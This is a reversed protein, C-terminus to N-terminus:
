RVKKRSYVAEFLLPLIFLTLLMSVPLGGVIMIALPKQIESGMGTSIAAPLLGASGMLAVMVLPRIRSEVAKHIATKLDMRQRTYHKAAELLIVGNLISVGFLIIYGVGASIGFNTGTVLLSVLGGLFAFPICSLAILTDSFNNFNVYLLFFIFLLSIPVIQMLRKTAREKNEFEGAWEMLYNRPLDLNNEVLTQAERITSGLDRGRISFGIAIHRTNAERYIFTPGTYFGIDAIEKLAVKSGRLTPILIDGIHDENARYEPMFRIRIDFVREDEYFYNATKGGIAMEIVAQADAVMIGHMAMREEDLSIRMEPQGINRFVNLDEIGPVDAIISATSDALQELMELNDGFIKIVLASKVGAVYEEVNDMIPQSFALNMNPIIEMSSRIDELLSETTVGRRWDREPKLEIHFEINFFGTPDTGDNPRGTQTLVYEVEPFTRVREKMEKTLEVARALSISNPLTARAYIAGENLHPLFETGLTRFAFVGAVVMSATGILAWKKVSYIACFAKYLGSKFLRTVINSRERINKRLLDNALAPVLTLSFILSGILAYGLTYALPSFMKGEVKQFAFIPILACILILKAFFVSQATRATSKKIMGAKALQNFRSMGLERRRKDLAVFISEVIVVAGDVIIGFDIAGMSILNAPLGQLRLMIFAFLLSLPIIVAVILTTRWGMLFLFVIASVLVVGEILNFTVTRVTNNVLDTRDYFPVLSVGAPLIRDNLDDIKLKLKDIVDSPNEGRRMVVIGQVLDDIDDLGVQGLRPKGSILVEAVHRVLVPTGELNDIVINEIDELNDLLGIGRVVYAQDGKEIIDGGVNVNSAAVAEYVDLPTLNYKFLLNPDVRIEFIKEEGGFSVIDAIGPVSLLHREVLWQQIATLERIDYVESQLTYRFIEGTAGSPPEIEYDAGDPFPINLLRAAAYQQATFDDVDDEFIATVVSLGFLSISRLEAIKPITNMEKEVPITIFKEVEEASRGPWQTIVRVRTNTVDPFAEIPLNIYSVIGFFTVLATIFYIFVSNKLSFGIIGDVFKHM